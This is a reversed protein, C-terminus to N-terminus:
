FFKSNKFKSFSQKYPKCYNLPHWFYRCTVGQTKLYKFLANRKKCYADTWLPVEGKKIRFGILRFNDNQNLNKM